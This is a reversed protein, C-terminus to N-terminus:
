PLKVRTGVMRSNGELTSTLNGREDYFNVSETGSFQDGTVTFRFSVETRGTLLHSTRDATIEVWKGKIEIGEAIWIGKGDSDSSRSDGADPNAQQMTGDGNFTYMHLPFPANPDQVVWVGVISNPAARTQPSTTCGAFAAALASIVIASVQLDLRQLSM